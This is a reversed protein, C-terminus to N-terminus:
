LIQISKYEGLEKIISEQMEVPFQLQLKIIEGYEQEKIHVDRVKIFNMVDNQMTYPLSIRISAKEFDEVIICNKLTDAATEKYAQILGGTGLKTGGFYRVVTVLVNTLDMSKIQGYIPPGATNPPENADSYKFHTKDAGLRWAYCVHRAKHHEKKLKEIYGKVEDENQVPYAYGM